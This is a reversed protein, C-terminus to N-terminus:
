PGQEDPARNCAAAASVWALRPARRLVPEPSVEVVRQVVFERAEVAWLPGRADAEQAVLGITGDHPAEWGHMKGGERMVDLVEDAM